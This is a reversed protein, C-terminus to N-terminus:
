LVVGLLEPIVLLALFAVAAAKTKCPTRIPPTKRNSQVGRIIRGKPVKEAKPNEAM